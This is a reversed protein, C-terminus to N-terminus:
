STPIERAGSYQSATGIREVRLITPRTTAAEVDLSTPSGSTGLGGILAVTQTTNGGTCKVVTWGNVDMINTTICTTTEIGRIETGAANARRLKTYTVFPSTGGNVQAAWSWSILYAYGTKFAHSVSTIVADTNTASVLPAIATASISVSQDDRWTTIDNIDSANVEDGAAVM